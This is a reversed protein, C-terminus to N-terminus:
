RMWRARVLRDLILRTGFGSGCGLELV